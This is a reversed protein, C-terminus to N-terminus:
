GLASLVARAAAMLQDASLGSAAGTAPSGGVAVEYGNGYAFVTPTGPGDTALYTGDVQPVCPRAGGPDAGLCAGPDARSIRVVLVADAPTGPSDDPASAAADVPSPGALLQGGGVPVGSCAGILPDAAGFAGAPLADRLARTVPGSLSPWCDAPASFGDAAASDAAASGAAGGAAASPATSAPVIGLEPAAAPVRPGAPAGAAAQDGAASEAVAKEADASTNTSSGGSLSLPIVLAAVAALSAAALLAVLTRRRRSPRFRLVEDPPAVDPAGVVPPGAADDDASGDAASGDANAAARAARIVSRVDVTSPPAAPDNALDTLLRAVQAAQPDPETV